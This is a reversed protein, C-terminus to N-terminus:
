HSRDFAILMPGRSQCLRTSSGAALQTRNRGPPETNMSASSNKRTRVPIGVRQEISPAEAVQQLEGSIACGFSDNERPSVIDRGEIKRSCRDVDVRSGIVFLKILGRQAGLWTPCDVFVIQVEFGDGHFINLWFYDDYHNFDGSGKIPAGYAGITAELDLVVFDYRECNILTRTTPM